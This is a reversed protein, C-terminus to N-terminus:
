RYHLYIAIIFIIDTISVVWNAVRHAKKSTGVTANLLRTNIAEMRIIFRTLM